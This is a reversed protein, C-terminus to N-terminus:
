RLVIAVEVRVLAFHECDGVFSFVVPMAFVVSASLVALQAIWPVKSVCSSSAFVITSRTRAWKLVVVKSFGTVLKVVHHKRWFLPNAVAPRVVSPLPTLLAAWSVKALRINNSSITLRAVAVSINVDVVRHSAVACRTQAQEALAVGDSVLTLSALIPEVTICDVGFVTNLAFTVWLSCLPTIMECSLANALWANLSAIAIPALGIM